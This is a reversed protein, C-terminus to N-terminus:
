AFAGAHATELELLRRKNEMGGAYGTLSGNAGLVRHCPIFIPLPNRNCALGAARSGKPSGAMAAVAGYTATAGYPIDLLAGWVRRMFPTGEPRLPVTFHTLRGNFYRLLEQEALSLLETRDNAPPREEGFSSAFHARILAGDQEVLLIRGLLTDVTLSTM